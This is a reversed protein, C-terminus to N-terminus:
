DVKIVVFTASDVGDIEVYEIRVKGQNYARQWNCNWEVPTGSPYTKPIDDPIKCNYIEDYSVEPEGEGWEQINCSFTTLSVGLILILKKM